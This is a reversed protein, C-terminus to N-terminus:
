KWLSRNDKINHEEELRQSVLYAMLAKRGWHNIREERKGLVYLTTEYWPWYGKIYLIPKLKAPSTNGTPHTGMHRGSNAAVKFALAM